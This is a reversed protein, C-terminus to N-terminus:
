YYRIKKLSDIEIGNYNATTYNVKFVLLQDTFNSIFLTDSYGVKWPSSCIITDYPNPNGISWKSLNCNFLNNSNNIYSDIKTLIINSYMDAGYLFLVSDASTGNYRNIYGNHNQTSSILQWPGDILASTLLLPFTSGTKGCNFFLISSVIIFFIKKM